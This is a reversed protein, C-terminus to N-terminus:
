FTTDATMWPHWTASRDVLPTMPLTSRWWSQKWFTKCWLAEKLTRPRNQTTKQKFSLKTMLLVPAQLHVYWTPEQNGERLLMKGEQKFVAKQM